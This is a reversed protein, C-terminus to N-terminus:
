PSRLVWWCLLLVVPLGAVAVIFPVNPGPNAYLPGAAGTGAATGLAHVSGLLGLLVGRQEERVRPVIVSEILPRTVVGGGLLVYALGSAVIGQGLLVGSGAWAMAMALIFARLPKDGRGLWISLVVISAANLSGLVGIVDSALGREDDLFQAPAPGTPSTLAVAAFALGIMLLAVVLWRQRFLQAYGPTDPQREVPPLPKTRTAAFTSMVFWIAALGFVPRLGVMRSLWGGLSPAFILGGWFGANLTTIARSYTQRPREDAELTVVRSLYASSLPVAIGSMGYCLFAPILFRWDPALAIGIVGITGIVWAPIMVQRPGFRDALWGGPLYILLKVLWNMGLVLGIQEPGAGLDEIYLSQIYIWLGEGIGWLLYSLSLWRANRGLYDFM